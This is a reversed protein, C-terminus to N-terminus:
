PCCCTALTSDNQNVGLLSGFGSIWCGVRLLICLPALQKQPTEPGPVTLVVSCRAACRLTKQRIVEKDLREVEAALRAAERKVKEYQAVQVVPPRTILAAAHLGAVRQALWCCAPHCAFSRIPTM